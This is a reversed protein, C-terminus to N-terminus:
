EDHELGNKRIDNEEDTYLPTQYRAIRAENALTAWDYSDAYEPVKVPTTWDFGTKINIKKKCGM